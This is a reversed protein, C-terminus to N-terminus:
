PPSAFLLTATLEHSGIITDGNDVASKAMPALGTETIIVTPDVPVEVILKVLLLPKVPATTRTAVTEGEPGLVLTNGDVTLRVAPPIPV